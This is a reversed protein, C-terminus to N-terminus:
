FFHLATNVLVGFELVLMVSAEMELIQQSDFAADCIYVLNGIKPVQYTEEYKAAIWLAVIGLLQLRNRKVEVKELYADIIHVALFLTLPQLRYKLHVDVLWNLLISRM